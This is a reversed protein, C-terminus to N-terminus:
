KKSGKVHSSWFHSGFFFAGIGTVLAVLGGSTAISFIFLSWDSDIKYVLASWFLIFLYFKIVLVAIERRARSRDTNESMTAIAFDTVGKVMKANAEAQEESTYKQNGIWSGMQTILGKDKDFLNDIVKPSSKFFESISSLISM